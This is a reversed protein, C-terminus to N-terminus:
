ALAAFVSLPGATSWVSMKGSRASGDKWSWALSAIWRKRVYVANAHNGPRCGTTVPPAATASRPRTEGGALAALRERGEDSGRMVQAYIGLIVAPDTHGMQSM